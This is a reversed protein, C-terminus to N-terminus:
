GGTIPTAAPVTTASAGGTLTTTAGGALTTTTVPEAVAPPTAGPALAPPAMTFLRATITAKLEAPAEQGPAPPTASAANGQLDVGDIVVVRRLREVRSLFDLVQFFGGEFNMTLAIVSPSGAPGAAPATPAISVWKVGARAEIERISLIFSALDPQEPVAVALRQMEAERAPRQTDLAKLRTLTSQLGAEKAVAAQTKTRADSLQSGKPKYMFMFWVVLVVVMALAAGIMTQRKM